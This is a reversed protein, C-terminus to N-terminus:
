FVKKRIFVFFIVSIILLLVQFGPTKIDPLEAKEKVDQDNNSFSNSYISNDNSNDLYIGIENDYILNDSINNGNSYSLFVGEECNTIENNTVYNNSSYEIFIGSEDYNNIYNYSIINNNSWRKVMVGQSDIISNNHIINYRSTEWLVISSSIHDVFSNNMVVNFSSNYFRLAEFNNKFVNDSINNDHSSTQLYICQTNNVFFNNIINNFGLDAAGGIYVGIESNQIKFGSIDSHNCQMFVAYMGSDGDIVPDDIGILKLSKNVFLNGSYFGAYVIITDNDVAADIADQILSFNTSENSGGVYFLQSSTAKCINVDFFVSFLSFFLLSFLILVFIKQFSTMWKKMSLFLIFSLM